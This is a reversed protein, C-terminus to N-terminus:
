RLASQIAQEALPVMVAYGAANPHVGDESLEARLMGDAGVMDGYYDLYTLQHEACYQRLWDNLARIKAPSRQLTARQAGRDHIPLLSSFIVAVKNAAALDAMSAYNKEIAELTTPGTSGAIDNTGALIVSVRPTLEIVDPRFRVLMQPTTQGSIGRNLYPKGPFSQKLNWGATISDGIFVVRQEGGGPQGDQANAERYQALEPWDRQLNWLHDIWAQAEQLSKPHPATTESDTTAAHATGRQKFEQRTQLAARISAAVSQALMASGDDTFHVNAPKQIEKLRPLAFGYLDDIMIDNDKMIALAVSNYIPADIRRRHLESIPAEPVPTTTAWILSAGTTKLQDVLMRVNKSYEDPSVQFSGDPMVTLDHLGWNFHIVDWKRDGLWLSLFKLGVKTTSGNMPIRHVNAVEQLMRRVPITYDMSISDGILLVRPLAPNDPVEIYSPDPAVNPLARPEATGSQAQSLSGVVDPRSSACGEAAELPSSLWCSACALVLAGRLSRSADCM